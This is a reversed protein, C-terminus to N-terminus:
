VANENREGTRIRLASEIPIVFIKGDGFEGSRAKTTIAKIVANVDQDLVVLEIKIKPILDVCYEGTRWQLRIGNQKGRGCVESVTM